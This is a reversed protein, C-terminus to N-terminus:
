FVGELIIFCYLTSEWTRLSFIRADADAAVSFEIINTQKRQSKRVKGDTAVEVKETETWAEESSHTHCCANEKIKAKEEESDKGTGQLLHSDAAVVATEWSGSEQACKCKHRKGDPPISAPM